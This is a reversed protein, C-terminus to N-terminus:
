KLIFNFICLVKSTPRNRSCIFEILSNVMAINTFSKLQFDMEISINVFIYIYERSRDSYSAFETLNLDKPLQVIHPGIRYIQIHTFRVYIFIWSFNKNMSDSINFDEFTINLILNFFRFLVHNSIFCIREAHLTINVRFM